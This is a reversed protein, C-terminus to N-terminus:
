SERARGPETSITEDAYRASVRSLAYGFMLGIVICVISPLVMDDTLGQAAQVAVTVVSGVTIGMICFYTSRRCRSMFFDVVKSLGLVGAVLGVGIPILATIRDMIVSMDMGGVLDMLPTYLGIALLIAAGSLGPVIKSLAILVGIIFLLVIDVADLETLSIGSDSSGVFLFAVMVVFGVACAIINRSTPRATEDSSNCLRYIDPIQCLILAAFFFMLPVEWDQLLADIGVACVLLGVVVGIGVPIIFRLDRLLKHRIDALDAILREYIGFIVAIIGGSAGPMMSMIGILVGVLCDKLPKGNM